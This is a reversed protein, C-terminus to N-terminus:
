APLRHMRRGRPFARGADELGPVEARYRAALVPTAANLVVPVGLRDAEATLAPLLRARLMKGDGRGPHRAAHNDIRWGARTATVGLVARREPDLYLRSRGWTGTQAAVLAALLPWLPTGVAACLASVVRGGWPGRTAGHLWGRLIWTAIRPADAIGALVVGPPTSPPVVARM